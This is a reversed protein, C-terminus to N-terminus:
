APALEKALMAVVKAGTPDTPRRELEVYGRAAHFAMSGANMPQVNVECLMRGAARAREECADYLLSGVGRRRARDSVAIRDLYLFADYRRSFWAYHEGDYDTGSDIALCFGLVGEDDEVVLPAACRALIWALRDADMPSLVDVDRANLALVEAHDRPEIERVRLAGDSV